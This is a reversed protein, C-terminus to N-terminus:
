GYPLIHSVTLCESPQMSNSGQLQAPPSKFYQGDVGDSQSNCPTQSRSSCSEPQAICSQKSSSSCHDHEDVNDNSEWDQATMSNHDGESPEQPGNSQMFPMLRAHAVPNSYDPFQPSQESVGEGQNNNGFPESQTRRQNPLSPTGKKKVEKGPGDRVIEDDDDDGSGGGGSLPLNLMDSSRRHLYPRSVVKSHDGHRQTM